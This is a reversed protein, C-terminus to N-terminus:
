RVAERQMLEQLTADAYGPGGAGDPQPADSDLAPAMARLRLHVLFASALLLGDLTAIRAALSPLFILTPPGIRLQQVLGAWSMVALPAVALVGLALGVWWLGHARRLYSSNGRWFRLSLYAWSAIGVLGALPWVTVLAAFFWTDFDGFDNLALVFSAGFALFGFLATLISLPAFAGVVISLLRYVDGTKDGSWSM